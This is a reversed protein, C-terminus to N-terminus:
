QLSKLNATVIHFLLSDTSFNKLWRTTWGLLNLPYVHLRATDCDDHKILEVEIEEERRKCVIFLSSSNERLWGSMPHHGYFEGRLCYLDWVECTVDVQPPRHRRQRRLVSRFVWHYYNSFLRAFVSLFVGTRTQRPYIETFHTLRYSCIWLRLIRIKITMSQSTTARKHAEIRTYNLYERQQPKIIQM